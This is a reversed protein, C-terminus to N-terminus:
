FIQLKIIVILDKMVSTMIIWFGTWHNASCILLSTEILIVVEAMFFNFSALKDYGLVDKIYNALFLIEIWFPCAPTFGQWFGKKREFLFMKDDSKLSLASQTFFIHWKITFKTSALWTVKISHKIKNKTLIFSLNYTGHRYYAIGRSLPLIFSDIFVDVLLQCSGFHIQITIKKM